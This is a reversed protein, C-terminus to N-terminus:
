LQIDFEEKLLSILSIASKRDIQFSQSIKETFLREPKGYTDIQLYKDNNHLFTSYTAAVPTHVANRNKELKQISNIDLRAM